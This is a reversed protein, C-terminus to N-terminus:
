YATRPLHNQTTYHYNCTHHQMYHQAAKQAHSPIQLLGLCATGTTNTNRRSCVVAAVVVTAVDTAVAELAM